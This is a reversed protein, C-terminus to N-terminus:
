QIQKESIKLVTYLFLFAPFSMSFFFLLPVFYLSLGIQAILIILIGISYHPYRVSYILSIILREKVQSTTITLFAYYYFFIFVFLISIIVLAGAFLSRINSNEPMQFLILGDMILILFVLFFAWGRKISSWINKKVYEFYDKKWNVKEDRLKKNICRFVAETSASIPIILLSTLVWMLNLVALFSFYDAFMVAVSKEDPQNSSEEKYEDRTM